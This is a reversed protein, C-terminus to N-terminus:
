STLKFSAVIQDHILSWQASSEIRYLLGAELAITYIMKGKKYQKSAIEGLKASGVLEGGVGFKEKFVWEDVSKYSTTTVMIRIEGELEPSTIALMSNYSGSPPTIDRVTVTKPYDFSFGGTDEYTSVSKPTGVPTAMTQASKVKAIPASTSKTALPKSTEKQSISFGFIIGGLSAFLVVLAFRKM